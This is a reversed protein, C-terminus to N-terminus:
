EESFYAMLSLQPSPGEQDIQAAADIPSSAMALKESIEVHWIGYHEKDPKLGVKLTIASPQGSAASAATIKPVSEDLKEAIAQAIREAATETKIPTAAAKTM